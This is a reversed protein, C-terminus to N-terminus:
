YHAKTKTLQPAQATTTVPEPIHATSFQHAIIYRTTITIIRCSYCQKNNSRLQHHHYYYYYHYHYDIRDQTLFILWHELNIKKKEKNESDSLVCFLLVTLDGRNLKAKCNICHRESILFVYDNTDISCWSLLIYLLGSKSARASERLAQVALALNRWTGPRVKFM